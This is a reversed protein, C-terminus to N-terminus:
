FHAILKKQMASFLGVIEVLWKAVIFTTPKPQRSKYVFASDYELIESQRQKDGAL